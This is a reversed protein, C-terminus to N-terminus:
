PETCMVVKLIKLIICLVYCLKGASSLDLGNKTVHCQSNHPHIAMVLNICMKHGKCITTHERTNFNQVIKKGNQVRM